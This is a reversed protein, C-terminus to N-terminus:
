LKKKKYAFFMVGLLGTAMLLIVVAYPFSDSTQPIRNAIASKTSAAPKVTNGVYGKVGEPGKVTLTIHGCYDCRYGEETKTWHNHGCAECYTYEQAATQNQNKATNNNTNNSSASNNSAANQAAKLEAIKAADAKLKKYDSGFLDELEKETVGYKNRLEKVAADAKNVATEDSLTAKDATPLEALQKKADAIKDEAEAALDKSTNYNPFEATFDADTLGYKNKLGDMKTRIADYPAQDASYHWDKLAKDMESKADALEKEMNSVATTLNRFHKVNTDKEDLTVEQAKLDNERKTLNAVADKDSYKVNAADSAAGMDRVLDDRTKEIAALADEVAQIKGTEEASLSDGKKKLESFDKEIQDILNSYTKYKDVKDGAPLESIQKHLAKSKSKLETMAKEADTLKKLEKETFNPGYPEFDTVEQRMATIADQSATTLDITFNSNAIKEVIESRKTNLDGLAKKADSYRQKEESTLINSNYDKELKDIAAAVKEIDAKSDFKVDATDPLANIQKIVAEVDADLAKVAQEANTLKKLENETFNPEKPELDTVKQRLDSIAKRNAPDRDIVFTTNSIEKVIGERQANLSDLAAKADTYPKQEADTLVSDGYKDKLATIATAAKEIAAKSSFKVDDAAPLANIQEIVANVESDLTKMANEADTLNKLEAETFNPEYADFDDVEKRLDAIANRSAETHDITLHANKVEAVIATRQNELETLKAKADTYPKLQTASPVGSGYKGQLSQIAQEVETIKAKSTLKVDKAEPLTNIKEVVANVDDQAAKFKAALTEYDAYNSIDDKTVGRNNLLDDISEKLANFKAISDGDTPNLGAYAAINQEVEKIKAEIDAIAAQADTLKQNLASDFSAELAELAAKESAVNGIDSKQTLKVDKKEPLDNLAKKEADLREDLAKVDAEAKTLKELESDTFTAKSAAVFANVEQRISTIESRHEQNFDITFSAASIKQILAVKANEVKTRSQKLNELKTNREPDKEELNYGKNKLSEAQKEVESLADTDDYTFSTGLADLKNNFSEIEDALAKLASDVRQFNAYSNKDLDNETVGLAKLAELDEKAKTLADVNDATPKLAAMATNLSNIKADIDSLAAKAADVRTKEESLKAAAELDTVNALAAEAADVAAKDTYKVTEPIKAVAEKAANFATADITIDCAASNGYTDTVVLHGGATMSYVGNTATLENGDLTVSQIGKNDSVTFEVPQYYYNTNDGLSTTPPIWDASVTTGAVITPTVASGENDGAYNEGIYIENSSFSVSTILNDLTKQAPADKVKFKCSLLLNKETTIKESIAGAKYMETGSEVMISVSNGDQTIAFTTDYKNKGKETKANVIDGTTLNDEDPEDVIEPDFGLFMAFGLLGVDDGNSAAYVDVEIEDGATAITSDPKTVNKVDYTVTVSPTDTGGGSEAFASVPAMTVLLAVTCLM